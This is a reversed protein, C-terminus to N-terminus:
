KQVRRAVKAALRLAAVISSLDFRRIASDTQPRTWGLIAGALRVSGGSLELASILAEKDSIFAPDATHGSQAKALPECQSSEASGALHDTAPLIAAPNKEM